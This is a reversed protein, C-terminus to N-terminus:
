ELIIPEVYFGTLGLDLLKLYLKHAIIPIRFRSPIDISGGLWEDLLFFSADPLSRRSVVLARRGTTRSEEQGCAGCIHEVKVQFHSGFKGGSRTIHLQSWLDSSISPADKAECFKVPSFRVEGKCEKMLANRADHSVITEFHSTYQFDKSSVERGLLVLPNLQRALPSYGCVNCRSPIKYVTKDLEMSGPGAFGNINFKLFEAEDVDNPEYEVFDEELIRLHTGERQNFEAVASRFLMENGSTISIKLGGDQYSLEHSKNWMAVFRDHSSLEAQDEFELMLLKLQNM